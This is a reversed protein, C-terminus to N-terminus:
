ARPIMPGCAPHRRGRLSRARLASLAVSEDASLLFTPGTFGDKRSIRVCSEKLIMEFDEAGGSEHEAAIADTIEDATRAAGLFPKRTPTAQVWRGNMADTRHGHDDISLKHENTQVPIGLASSYRLVM